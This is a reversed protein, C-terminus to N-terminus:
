PHSLSRFIDKLKPEAKTDGCISHRYYTIAIRTDPESVVVPEKTLDLWASCYLAAFNPESQTAAVSANM